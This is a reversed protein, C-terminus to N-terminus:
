QILEAILPSKLSTNLQIVMQKSKHSKELENIEAYLKYLCAHSHAQEFLDELEIYLQLGELLLPLAQAPKKMAQYALGLQTKVSAEWRLSGLEKFFKLCEYGFQLASAFQNSRSCLVMREFLVAAYEGVDNLEQCVKTAEILDNEASVYDDFRLKVRALYRLAATYTSSRPLNQQLSISMELYQRGMKFDSSQKMHSFAILILNEAVGLWEEEEEYLRKSEEFLALAEDDQGRENKIRGLLYKARAIGREEELHMYQMLADDLHEEADGYNNLELEVEGLRLLTQALARENELAKAADLSLTLGIHMENFRIQRFWPKDLVQVFDLVRQWSDLAHVKTIAASFNGWEPHLHNYADQHKRAFQYFYDVFALDVARIIEQTRTALKDAAFQRVLNHMAYREDEYQQQLLSRECLLDLDFFQTDVVQEAAEASFSAPFVSLAALMAKEEAALMQWSTEFVARMSRHRPDIDRLNTSLFDLSKGIADSIQTLSRRRVWAAALAIGLPLGDVLQCIHRVQPLDTASVAFSARAMQAREVFMAEADSMVINEIGNEDIKQEGADQSGTEQNGVALGDLLVVSEAQFNLPERSTVLIAIEPARRLWEPIFLLDDLVTESSDLILLVCKDRLITIVQDGTLQKNGQGSEDQRLSVAEGVAIKIQEAGGKIADLAVFWVGDRFSSKIQQGVEIALRTKGVGGTGVLTILRYTPDVLRHLLEAQETTRGFFRSVQAPLNDAIDVSQLPSLVALEHETIKQYLQQTEDEPEVGLEDWLIQKCQDYQALAANRDGIHTHAQMIARHAAELWPELTLQRQAVDLVAPWEGRGIQADRLWTMAELVRQQLHERQAVLWSEWTDSPFNLGALFEGRVLVVAEELYALCTPCGALERHAHTEVTEVLQEFHTVDVVIDDGTRLTIQKRDITLFPPTAASDGASDGANDGIADRLRTLRNRLYTLADKQSRDPSLLFALTDRRQPTGQHAALYALLVRQADTRFDATQDAVQVTLPGLMSIQLDTM